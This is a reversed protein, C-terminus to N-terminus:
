QIVRTMGLTPTLSPSLPASFVWGLGEKVRYMPDSSDYMPDSSDYMPDSLDNMPVSTDNMHDSTDNM